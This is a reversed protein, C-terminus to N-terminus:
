LIKEPHSTPLKAEKRLFEKLKEPSLVLDDDSCAKGTERRREAKEYNSMKKYLGEISEWACREHPDKRYNEIYEQSAQWYLRIWYFFYLYTQFGDIEGSKVKEAIPAQFFDLVDELDLYGIGVVDEGLLFQAASKRKAEMREFFREEYKDLLATSKHRYSNYAALGTFFLGLITFIIIFVPSYKRDAVTVVLTFFGWIGIIIPWEINILIRKLLPWLRKM